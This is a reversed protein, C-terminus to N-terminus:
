KRQPSNAVDNRKEIGASDHFPEEIESHTRAPRGRVAPACGLFVKAVPLSAIRSKQDNLAIKRRVGHGMRIGTKDARTKSRGVRAIGSM